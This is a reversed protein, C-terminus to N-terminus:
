VMPVPGPPIEARRYSEKLLFAAVVGIASIAPLLLIAKRYAAEPYNSSMSGGAFHDLIVGFLWEGMGGLLMILMNTAAIATGAVRAPNHEVATVFCVVQSCSFLGLVLLLVYAGALPIRPICVFVITTIFTLVGAVLLMNRRVGKHDSFWGAIPGGILWGVYLMSVAGAAGVKDAGTIASVYEEGWLAGLVSLPMYLSTGVIGAFWSQPNSYVIKLSRLISPGRELEVDKAREQRRRSKRPVFILIMLTVLVGVGTAVILSHRWGLRGVADAIGANGIIAGAMGLSTTLGSLLALMTRPFWEAALYMTGVFAFASGFGQLFRATSLLFTTHGFVELLCGSTCIIAAPVLVFKAGFRDLFSGALLQMPAYITYYVGMAAGLGAATLHFSRQLEPEMASPAVRVFFEYLYFLAAAGWILWGRASAKVPDPGGKSGDAFIMGGYFSIGSSGSQSVFRKCLSNQREKKSFFGRSKTPPM